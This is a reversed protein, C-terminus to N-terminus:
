GAKKSNHLAFLETEGRGILLDYDYIRKTMYKACYHAAGLKPNYRRVDARGYHKSYWDEIQKASHRTEILAHCHYGERGLEFQEAAWFMLEGERLVRLAVKDMLRRASKLSIPKATTFTAFSTWDKGRLYESWDALQPKM